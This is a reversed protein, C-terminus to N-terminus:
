PADLKVTFCGVTKAPHSLDDGALCHGSGAFATFALTAV